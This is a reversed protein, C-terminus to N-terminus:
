ELIGNEIFYKYTEPLYNMVQYKDTKYLRYIDIYFDTQNYNILGTQHVINNKEKEFINYFEKSYFYKNFKNSYNELLVTELQKENQQTTDIYATNTLIITSPNTDLLLRLKENISEDTLHIKILDDTLEEPYSYFQKEYYNIMEDSVGDDVIVKTKRFLINERNSGESFNFSPEFKMDKKVTVNITKETKNRNFDSTELTLPYTGEQYVNIGNYTINLPLKGDITDEAYFDCGLLDIHKNLPIVIDNAHIIPNKTDVVNITLTTNTTLLGFLDFFKNEKVIVVKEGITKTDVDFYNFDYDIVERIQKQVKEQSSGYEVTISKDVEKAGVTTLNLVGLVTIICLIYIKKM